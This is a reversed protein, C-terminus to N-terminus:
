KEEFKKKKLNGSSRSGNRNTRGTYGRYCTRYLATGCLVGRKPWWAALFQSSFNWPIKLYSSVPSEGILLLHRVSVM